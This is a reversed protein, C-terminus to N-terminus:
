KAALKWTGVAYTQPVSILEPAVNLRIIAIAFCIRDFALRKVWVRNFVHWVKLYWGNRQEPLYSLGNNEMENQVWFIWLNPYLLSGKSQVQVCKVMAYINYQVCERLEGFWYSVLLLNYKYKLTSSCPGHRERLLCKIILSPLMM